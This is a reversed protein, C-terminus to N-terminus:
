MDLTWSGRNRGKAFLLEWDLFNRSTEEKCFLLLSSDQGSKQSAPPLLLNGGDRFDSLPFRLSAQKQKARDVAASLSNARSWGRSVWVRWLRHSSVCPGPVREVPAATIHHISSQLMRQKRICCAINWNVLQGQQNKKPPPSPPHPKLYNIWNYYICSKQSWRNRRPQAQTKSPKPTHSQFVSSSKRGQVQSREKICCKYDINKLGESKHATSGVGKSSM